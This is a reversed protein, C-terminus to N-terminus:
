HFIHHVRDTLIKVIDAIEVNKNIKKLTEQHILRMQTDLANRMMQTKAVANSNQLDAVFTKKRRPLNKTITKM